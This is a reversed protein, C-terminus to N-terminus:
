LELLKKREKKFRTNYDEDRRCGDDVFRVCMEMKDAEVASVVRCYIFVDSWNIMM